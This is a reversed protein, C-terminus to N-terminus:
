RQFGGFKAHRIGLHNTTRNGFRLAVRRDDAQSAGAAGALRTQGILQQL